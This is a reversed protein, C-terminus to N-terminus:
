LTIWFAKAQLFFRTLLHFASCCCISQEGVQLLDHISSELSSPELRSARCIWMNVLFPLLCYHSLALSLDLTILVLIILSLWSNLVTLPSQIDYSNWWLYEHCLVCIFFFGLIMALISSRQALWKWVSTLHPSPQPYNVKGPVVDRGNECWFRQFLWVYCLVTMRAGKCLLCWQSNLLYFDKSPSATYKLDLPCAVIVASYEAGTFKWAGALM